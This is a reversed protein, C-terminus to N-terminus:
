RSEDSWVAGAPARGGGGPERGLSLVPIIPFREALRDAERVRRWAIALTSPFAILSTVVKLVRASGHRRTSFTGGLRMWMAERAQRASFYRRWLYIEFASPLHRHRVSTRSSAYTIVRAKHVRLGGRPAHHHFVSTTPNLVMLAGSLYIRTGLDGDARQGLDYALDFLGSRTLVDKRILTNGAPFVDSIRYMSFAEGPPGAGAEDAVGCSADAEHRRLSRLHREILDPEIEVDDDLLLIYRGKAVNIGLNRSSCQGAREMHIVQLPLGPVWSEITRDRAEAPTQDVVIVQLPPVTQRALQGLLTCLYPYRDITPVLVSVSDHGTAELESDEPSPYPPELPPSEMRKVARWALLARSAGCYGTMSARAAAWALWKRGFRMRIFRFEDELSLVVPAPPHLEGVLRPDHRVFVGRKIWRHGMELAAGDLSRFEPSPGRMRRLVDTRILCSRLSLRWSSAEIDPEPDRNLMWTPQVFDIMGPAGATGLKLGAHWVDIRRDLLRNLYAEDPVGLRADRFFWAAAPSSVAKSRILDAVSGPSPDPVLHVRGSEWVPPSAHGLWVLDIM